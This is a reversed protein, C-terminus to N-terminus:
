RPCIISCENVTIRYLMGNDLIVNKEKYCEIDNVVDEIEETINELIPPSCACALSWAAIICRFGQKVLM